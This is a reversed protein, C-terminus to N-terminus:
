KYGRSMADVLALGFTAFGLVRSWSQIMASEMQVSVM